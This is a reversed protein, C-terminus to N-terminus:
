GLHEFSVRTYNTGYVVVDATARLMAINLTDGAACDVVLEVPVNTYAGAATQQALMVPVGGVTEGNKRVYVTMMLGASNSGDLVINASVRYLGAAPCTFVGTGPDYDDTADLVVNNCALAVLTTGVTLHGATRFAVVVPKKPLRVQGGPEVKLAEVFSAGDASVKVSLRDDGVLGIEARTSFGTQFLLSAVGPTNAKNLKARAGLADAAGVWAAGDFLLLVSADRVFALQGPARTLETWAGAEFRMLAGEGALSWDDGTAGPPLIYLAGDAPSAPQAALTRSEVSCAVLGDLLGLGENLTVHKQAQSAALYPLNLRPTSDDSM